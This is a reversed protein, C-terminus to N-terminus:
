NLRGMSRGGERSLVFIERPGLKSTHKALAKDFAGQIASESLGPSPRSAMLGLARTQAPTFVAEGSRLTVVSEGMGGVVGGGHFKTGGFLGSFLGSAGGTLGAFVAQTALQRFISRLVNDFREGSFVLRDFVQSGIRGFDRAAGSLDSLSNQTNSFSDELDEDSENVQLSLARYMDLLEQMQTINPNVGNEILSNLHGEVARIQAGAVDFGEFVYSKQRIIDFEQEISRMADAVQNSWGDGITVGSVRRASREVNRLAEPMEEINGLVRDLEDQLGQLRAQLGRIAGTDDAFSSEIAEQITAM